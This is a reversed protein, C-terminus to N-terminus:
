GYFSEQLLKKALLHDRLSLSSYEAFEVFM